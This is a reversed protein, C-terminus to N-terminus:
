ATDNIYKRVGGRTSHGAYGRPPAAEKLPRMATRPKQQVGLRKAITAPGQRAIATRVAKPNLDLVRCCFVYSALADRDSEFWDRADKALKRSIEAAGNGVAGIGM